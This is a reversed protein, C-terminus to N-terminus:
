SLVQPLILRLDKETVVIDAAKGVEETAPCFAIGLGAKRLAEIDNHHDGVFVTEQLSIDLEECIRLLAHTKDENVFEPHTFHSLSGDANFHLESIHVSDFIERHDPILKELLISLSGSILALKMGAKKLEGLTEAVGKHLRLRSISADIDERTAGSEKWASLDRDAWQHWDINGAKYLDWGEQVFAPDIRLHQHITIWISVTNEVLTGDLDFCVLKYRM